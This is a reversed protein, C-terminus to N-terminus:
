SRAEFKKDIKWAMELDLREIERGMLSHDEIMLESFAKIDDKGTKELALNCTEIEAFSDQLAKALFRNSDPGGLSEGPSMYIKGPVPALAHKIFHFM